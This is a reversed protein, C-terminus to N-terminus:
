KAAAQIKKVAETYWNKVSTQTDCKYGNEWSDENASAKRTTKTLAEEYVKKIAQVKELTADDLKLKAIEALQVQYLAEKADALLAAVKEAYKTKITNMFSDLQAETTTKGKVINEKEEVLDDQFSVGDEKANKLEGENMSHTIKANFAVFLVKYAKADNVWTDVDAFTAAKRTGDEARVRKYYESLVLDGDAKETDSDLHKTKGAFETALDSTSAYNNGTLNHLANYDTLYKEFAKKYISDIDDKVTKEAEKIEIITAGTPVWNAAKKTVNCDNGQLDNATTATLYGNYVTDKDTIEKAYAVVKEKVENTAKKVRWATFPLNWGKLEEEVYQLGGMKTNADAKYSVLNSVTVPALNDGPNAERNLKVWNELLNKVEAHASSIWQADTSYANIEADYAAIIQNQIKSMIQNYANVIADKAEKALAITADTASVAPLEKAKSAQKIFSQAVKFPLEEEKIGFEKLDKVLKKYNESSGTADFTADKGHVDGLGKQIMAFVQKRAGELKNVSGGDFTSVLTDKKVLTGVEHLTKCADIQAKYDDLFAKRDENSMNGRGSGDVALPDAGTNSKAEFLKDLGAKANEKATNILTQYAADLVDKQKKLETRALEVREKVTKNSTTAATHITGLGLQYKAFLTEDKFSTATADFIPKLVNNDKDEKYGKVLDKDAEALDNYYATLLGQVYDSVTGFQASVIVAGNTTEEFTGVYKGDIISDTIEVDKYNITLKKVVEDNAKPGEFTLTYKDGAKGSVVDTKIGDSLLVVPYYADGKDGKDGKEGKPGQPGQAGPKGEPGAEGQTGCSTVAGVSLALMGTLALCKLLNKKKM